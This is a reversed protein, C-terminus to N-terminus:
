LFSKLSDILDGVSEGFIFKSLVATIFCIIIISVFMAIAKQDSSISVAESYSYLMVLVSFLVGVAFVFTGAKANLVFFLLAAVVVIVDWVVKSSIINMSNKFTLESKFILKTTLVYSAACGFYNAASLILCGLVLKAYPVAGGFMGLKANVYLCLIIMGILTLCLNVLIATLGFNSTEHTYKVANSVPHLISDVAGRLFGGAAQKAQEMQPNPQQQQYYAQQNMQGMQPQSGMQDVQPQTSMQQAAAQVGQNVAMAGQCSCVEGDELKKGCYKCFAM